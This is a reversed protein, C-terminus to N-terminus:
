SPSLKLGIIGCLILGLCIIRLPDASEGLYLIGIAAVGVTGIGVWVAYATGMPIDKLAASLFFFGVAMAAITMLSPYLRTFGETYKLGVAWVIELLGAILLFIWAM